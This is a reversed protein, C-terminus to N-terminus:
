RGPEPVPPEVRTIGLAAGILKAYEGLLLSWGPSRVSGAGDRSGPPLVPHPLIEVVPPLKRRVELMARPMHYASTVLRISRVGEARAWAATETANGRTSRAAHGLTVRAQLPGLPLGSAAALDALTVGPHAGSVLLRGARGEVLLGLGTRVRDAGGTLVVIGDTDRDPAAPPAHVAHLFWVFGLMPALALLAVAVVLGGRRSM